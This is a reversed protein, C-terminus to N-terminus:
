RASAPCSRRRTMLSYEVRMIAKIVRQLAALFGLIEDLEQQKKREGVGDLVGVAEATRVLGSVRQANLAAQLSILVFM